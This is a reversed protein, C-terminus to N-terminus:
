VLPFVSGSFPYDTWQAVLGARVPNDLVYRIVEDVPQIPRIVWDHYGEQWARQM